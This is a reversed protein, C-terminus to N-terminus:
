YVEPEPGAECWQCPFAPGVLDVLLKYEGSSLARDVAPTLEKSNYGGKLYSRLRGGDLVLEIIVSRRVCRNKGGPIDYAIEEYAAYAASQVSQVDEPSLGLKVRAQEAKKEYTQKM